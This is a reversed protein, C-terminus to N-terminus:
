LISPTNKSGFRPDILCTRTGGQVKRTWPGASSTFCRIGGNTIITTAPTLSHNRKCHAMIIVVAIHYKHRAKLECIHLKNEYYPSMIVLPATPLLVFSSVCCKVPSSSFM